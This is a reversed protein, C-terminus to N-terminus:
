RKLFKQIVLLFPSAICISSYTGVIVGVILALVFHQISVGGFFYLAVLVILVTVSTNLSRALTSNISENIIEAFSKKNRERLRERIRDYVVITDHVSFGLVTLLATVFLTDIQVDFFRGLLIFVGMLILVDHILAVIAGVGFAWSPVPGNTIKRFAYSIFLIITVMVLLLAQIAKSRLEEGVSPGVSTFSNEQVGQEAYLDLIQQRQDNTIEQAKILAGSADVTQVLAGEIGINQIEQNMMEVAPRKDSQAFEIQMAAGGTFDLGLNLGFAIWLVITISCLIVSVIGLYKSTQLINYM